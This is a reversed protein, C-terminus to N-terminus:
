GGMTENFQDLSVGKLLWLSLSGIVVFALSLLIGGVFLTLIEVNSLKLASAKMGFAIAGLGTFTFTALAVALNFCASSFLCIIRILPHYEYYPFSM